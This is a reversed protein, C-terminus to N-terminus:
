GNHQNSPTLNEILTMPDSFQDPDAKFKIAREALVTMRPNAELLSRAFERPSTKLVSVQLDVSDLLGEIQSATEQWDPDNALLGALRDCLRDLMRETPKDM